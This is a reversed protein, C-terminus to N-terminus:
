FTNLFLKLYLTYDVYKGKKERQRLLDNIKKTQKIIKKNEYYGKPNKIDSTIMNEKKGFYVGGKVLLSSLLSTGSRGTGIVIIPKKIKNKSFLINKAFTLVM